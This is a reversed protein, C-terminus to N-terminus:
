SCTLWTRERAPNGGWESEAARCPCHSSQNGDRRRRRHALAASVSFAGGGVDTPDFRHETVQTSRRPPSQPLIEASLKGPSIARNRNSRPPRCKASPYTGLPRTLNQNAVGTNENESTTLPISASPLPPRASHPSRARRLTPTRLNRGNHPSM